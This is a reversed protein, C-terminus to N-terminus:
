RQVTDSVSSRRSVRDYRSSMPVLDPSDSLAQPPTMAGQLEEIPTISDSNAWSTFTDTNFPSQSQPYIARPHVNDRLRAMRQLHNLVLPPPPHFSHSLRSEYEPVSPRDGQHEGNDELSTDSDENSSYSEFSNSQFNSSNHRVLFGDIIVIATSHFIDNNADVGRCIYRGSHKRKVNKLVLRNGHIKKAKILVNQSIWLVDKTSGCTLTVTTGKSIEIRNPIVEGDSINDVVKISTEARFLRRSTLRGYCSYMGSDELQLNNLTVSYLGLNHRGNNIVETISDSDNRRTFSWVLVPSHSGCHIKATGYQFVKLEVPVIEGYRVRISRWNTAVAIDASIILFAIDVM